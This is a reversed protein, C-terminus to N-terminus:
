GRCGLQPEEGQTPAGASRVPLVSIALIVVDRITNATPAWRGACEEPLAGLLMNESNPRRGRPHGEAGKVGSLKRSIFDKPCTEKKLDRLCAVVGNEGPM